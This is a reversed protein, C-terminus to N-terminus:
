GGVRGHACILVRYRFPYKPEVANDSWYALVSFSIALPFYAIVISPRVSGVVMFEAYGLTEADLKPKKGIGIRSM